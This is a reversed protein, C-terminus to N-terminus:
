VLRGKADRILMERAANITLGPGSQEYMPPAVAGPGALQRGMPEPVPGWGAGPGGRARADVAGLERADRDYHSAEYGGAGFGESSAPGRHPAYPLDTESMQTRVSRTSASRGVAAPGGAGAGGRGEEVSGIESWPRTGGVGGAASDDSQWPLDLNDWRKSKESSSIVKKFLLFILALSLLGGIIIGSIVLPFLSNAPSLPSPSPKALDNATAPGTELPSSPINRTITEGNKDVTTAQVAAKQVEAASSSPATGQSPAPSKTPASSATLPTSSVTFAVAVDDTSSTAPSTAPAAKVSKVSTSEVADDTLTAATTTAAQRATTTTKLAAAAPASTPLSSHSTM